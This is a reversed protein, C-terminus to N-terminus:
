WLVNPCGLSRALLLDTLPSDQSEPASGEEDEEEEEDDDMGSDEMRSGKSSPLSAPRGRMMSPQGGMQMPANGPMGYPVMEHMGPMMPVVPPMSPLGFESEQM